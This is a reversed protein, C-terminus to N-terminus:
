ISSERIGSKKLKASLDAQQKIMKEREADSPQGIGAKRLDNNVRTTTMGGPTGISRYYNYLDKRALVDGGEKQYKEQSLDPKGSAQPADAPAQDASMVKSLQNITSGDMNYEMPGDGGAHIKIVGDKKAADDVNKLMTALEGAAENSEPSGDARLQQAIESVSASQGNGWEIELADAANAGMLGMVMLLNKFLGEELEEENLEEVAAAGQVGGAAAANMEELSRRWGEMILKMDNKSM